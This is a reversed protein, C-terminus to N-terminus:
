EVWCLCHSGKRTDIRLQHTHIYGHVNYSHLILPHYANSNNPRFQSNNNITTNNTTCCGMRSLPWSLDMVVTFYLLSPSKMKVQEFSLLGVTHSESVPSLIPVYPLNFIQKYKHYWATHTQTLLYCAHTLPNKHTCTLTVFHIQTTSNWLPATHSM